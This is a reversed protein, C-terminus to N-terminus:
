FLSRCPISLITTEDGPAAPPATSHYRLHLCQRPPHSAANLCRVVQPDLCCRRTGSCHMRTRGQYCSRAAAASAHRSLAAASHPPVRAHSTRATRVPQPATPVSTTSRSPTCRTSWRASSGRRRGWGWRQRWCRGAAGAGRAPDTRVRPMWVRFGLGTVAFELCWWRRHWAGLAAGLARGRARV